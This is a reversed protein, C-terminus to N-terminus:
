FKDYKNVFFFFRAFFECGFKEFFRYSFNSVVKKANELFNEKIEEYFYGYILYTPLNQLRKVHRM